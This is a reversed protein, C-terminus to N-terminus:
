RIRLTQRLIHLRQTEAEAKEHSVGAPCVGSDRGPNATIKIPHTQSWVEKGDVYAVFHITLGLTKAIYQVITHGAGTHTM